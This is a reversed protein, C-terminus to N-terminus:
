QHIADWQVSRNLIKIEVKIDNKQAHPPDTLSIKEEEVEGVNTLYPKIHQGNM